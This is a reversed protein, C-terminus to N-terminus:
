ENVDTAERGHRPEDRYRQEDDTTNGSRAGPIDDVIMESQRRLSLPKEAGIFNIISNTGSPSNENSSRISIPIISMLHGM